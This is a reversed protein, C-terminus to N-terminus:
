IISHQQLLFFCYFYITHKYSKMKLKTFSLHSFILDGILLSLVTLGSPNALHDITYPERKREYIFFNILFLFTNLKNIFNIYKNYIFRLIFFRWLVELNKLVTTISNSNPQPPSLKLYTKCWSLWAQYIRQIHGIMM